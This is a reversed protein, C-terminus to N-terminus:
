GQDSLYLTEKYTAERYHLAMPQALCIAQGQSRGKSHKRTPQKGRSSPWICAHAFLRAKALARLTNGQM